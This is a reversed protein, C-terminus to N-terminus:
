VMRVQLVSTDRTSSSNTALKVLGDRAPTEMSASRIDDQVQVYYAFTGSRKHGM